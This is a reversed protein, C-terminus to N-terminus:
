WAGSGYGQRDRDQIQDPAPMAHHCPWDQLMSQNNENSYCGDVILLECEDEDESYCNLIRTSFHDM